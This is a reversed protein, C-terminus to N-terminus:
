IREYDETDNEKKQTETFDHLKQDHDKDLPICEMCM